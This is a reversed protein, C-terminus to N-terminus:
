KSKKAEKRAKVTARSIAIEAIRKNITSDKQAKRFAVSFKARDYKVLSLIVTLLDATSITINVPATLATDNNVLMNLATRINYKCAKVAGITNEPLSVNEGDMASINFKVLEAYIKALSAKCNEVGKDMTDGLKPASGTLTCAQLYALKNDSANQVKSAIGKYLALAKKYGQLTNNDKENLDTEQSKDQLKLIIESTAAIAIQVAYKQVSKTYEDEKGAKVCDPLFFEKELAEVLFDNETATIKYMIVAKKMKDESEGQTM